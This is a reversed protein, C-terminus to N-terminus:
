VFLVNGLAVDGKIEVSRVDKWGVLPMMRADKFDSSRFRVGKFMGKTDSVFCNATYATIGAPTLRELTVSVEKDSAAFFDMQLFATEAISGTDVRYTKLGGESYLGDPGDSPHVIRLRPVFLVPAESGEVFPDTGQSAAYVVRPPTKPEARVSMGGLAAYEVLSSLTLGGAYHVNAFTFLPADADNIEPSALYQNYSIGIGDQKHWDRLRHNFMGTSYYIDVKEIIMAPDCDVDIYVKGDESVRVAVAPCTPLMGEGFLNRLWLCLSCFADADIYEGAMPSFVTTIYGSPLLAALNNVRDVDAIKSNTGVALFVPVDVHKAYAVSAVGTLWCMREDDIEFEKEEGYKNLRIYERYGAGNVAAIGKVAAGSGAAQMAVEVADGLGVLCPVGYDYGESAALFALTRKLIVTYLYQSTQLATPMVKQLHEGARDYFGYELAPPFVTGDLGSLDPLVVCFGEAVLRETFTRDPIRHYEPVVVLTGAVDGRPKFIRVSVRVTDGTAPYANILYRARGEDQEVIEAAFDGASPDHNQWITQPLLVKYEM